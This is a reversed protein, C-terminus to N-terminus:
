QQRRTAAEVMLYEGINEATLVGVLAGGDVVPLTHCRCAQLRALAVEVDEQPSAVQFSREMAASVWADRGKEALAELLRARTLVGTVRGGDVVPFDQQFGALVFDAARGLTDTPHLTRLDTIMVRSVPIGHFASRAQVASAEAAAGMWVFLAILVLFPNGMVFLGLIGFLLAFAKGVQAARDTAKVYDGSRM